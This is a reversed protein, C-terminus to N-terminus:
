GIVKAFWVVLRRDNYILADYMRLGRIFPAEEKVYKYKNINQERKKQLDLAFHNTPRTNIRTSAPQKKEEEAYREPYKERNEKDILERIIVDKDHVM